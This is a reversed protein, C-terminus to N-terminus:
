KSDKFRNVRSLFKFFSTSANILTGPQTPVRTFIQHFTQFAFFIECSRQLARKDCMPQMIHTMVLYKIHHLIQSHGIRRFRLYFYYKYRTIQISLIADQIQFIIIQHQPIVQTNIRGIIFRPPICWQFHLM